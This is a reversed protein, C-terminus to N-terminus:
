RMSDVAELCLDIVSSSVELQGKQISDFLSEIHHAIEGIDNVGISKAGGKVTHAARFISEITQSSYENKEIHLLGETIVQLLEELESQYTEIIIQLTKPDLEM